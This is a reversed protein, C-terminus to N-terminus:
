VSRRVRKFIIKGMELIKLSYFHILCVILIGLALLPFRWIPPKYLFQAHHIGPTVKVGIFGPALMVPSVKEYDLYVQWGPHYNTKLVLYSDRKVEFQVWYKNIEIKENLIKGREPQEIAFDSLIKEDVRQFSFVPLGFTKQPTKGIEIIPHQKLEPLSSILWKSNPYYFDPSEGYFVAPVDVLDFYGTTPVEYLVYNKFEKIPSYYPPALWTKHLLVYRINFVNYQALKTDDFHLRVDATLAESHYSYGFSDIGELQPFISYFPVEGIKYYSYGGWTAPLGAYVRGPPLDKLTKEINAIEEKQASFALQTQLLWTTNQSYFEAREIYAPYLLAIFILITILFYNKNTSIDKIHKLFLATGAGIIMIAGLHFVGILRHFQFFYSFPLLKLLIGFTPRGFFLILWFLTFCLLLRYKEERYRKLRVITSIGIFFLLTLSSFRGFDLLEGKFLDGIVKQAGFSDYKWSPIWRSRNTYELDLFLPIFFYSTIVAVLSFILILRKFRSFIEQKKPQIFIFLISSLIFIYGYFLHSLLVIASLVVAWFLSGKKKIARYIAALALPLFFMVWLQPFLGFGRWIYSDYVFGFLGNTSLLSSILASIGSALYNFGLGRMALFISVPFFVLLIYRSIDFLQSLSLFSSTFYHVFTLVMQPFNQYHHFLPYGLETEAVWFDTPDQGQGLASVAQSTASFHYVEDNLSFTPVSVESWLFVANFLVALFLLLAGIGRKTKLFNFFFKIKSM